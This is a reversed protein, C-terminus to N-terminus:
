ILKFPPSQPLIIYPFLAPFNEASAPNDNRLDRGPPTPPHIAKHPSRSPFRALGPPASEASALNETCRMCEYPHITQLLLSSHLVLFEQCFRSHRKQSDLTHPTRPPIPYISLLFRRGIAMHTCDRQNHAM